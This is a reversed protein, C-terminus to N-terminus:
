VLKKIGKKYLDIFLEAWEVMAPYKKRDWKHEIMENLNDKPTGIQHLREYIYSYFGTRDAGQKCHIHVKGGRKEIGEVLDLFRGVNEAKPYLSVSPISHYNIGQSQAFAKEDYGIDASNSTRFNIIDTVKHRKLWKINRKTIQASRSVTSDIQQYNQPKSFITFM